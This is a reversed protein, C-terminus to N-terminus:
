VKYGLKKIAEKIKNQNIKTEDFEIIAEGNEKINMKEVKGELEMEILKACSACHMGKINLKIKKM